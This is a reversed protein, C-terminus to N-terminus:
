PKACVCIQDNATADDCTTAVDISACDSATNTFVGTCTSGFMMCMSDCSTMTLTANFSCTEPTEECLLYGPAAGFIEDCTGAAGGSSSGGDTVPPAGSSSDDAPLSTSGAGSSSGGETAATGGTEATGATAADTETGGGLDGPEYCKDALEASRSYWRKGSPCAADPFTCLSNPECVGGAGGEAVCDADTLCTFVSHVDINCSAGLLVGLALRLGTRVPPLRFSRAAAGARPASPPRTIKM